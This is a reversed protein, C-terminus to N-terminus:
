ATLAAVVHDWSIGLDALREHGAEGMRRAAARDAYLRDMADAIAKPEPPAIVGNVGDRVWELVGGADTTTIVGKRAHAAELSPYGYSDEDKPLYATALADALLDAKEEESIWRNDFSIRDDVGLEAIRDQLAQAYADNSARGCLRLRVPTRVHAMAEILLAQRKHPEIRNVAVIEEGYAGCRFREPRWVPPYLTQADLGNFRKLRDGVVKSNTFIHSAERLAIDDARQLTRRVADNAPTAGISDPEGWLDYFTRIHHIFWLVKDPHRLVYSPPRVAILRDGAESLDVLRFAAIQDILTDPTDAFPFYFREVQHGHERLKEELWEVIFRGGGDVFPVISSALVIKM